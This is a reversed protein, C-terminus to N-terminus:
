GAWRMRRLRGLVAAAQALTTVRALGRQLKLLARWIADQDAPDQCGVHAFAERTMAPDFARFSPNLWVIATAVGRKVPNTLSSTILATPSKAGGLVGAFIEQRQRVNPAGGDSVVLSRLRNVDGSAARQAQAATAICAEWEQTPPNKATHLWALFVATPRGVVLMGSDMLHGRCTSSLEGERFRSM